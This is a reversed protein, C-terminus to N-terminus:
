SAPAYSCPFEIPELARGLEDAVDALPSTGRAWTCLVDRLADTVFGTWRSAPSHAWNRRHLENRLALAFYGDAGCRWPEHCHVSALGRLLRQAIPNADLAAFAPKLRQGLQGASTTGEWADVVVAGLVPPPFAFISDFGDLRDILTRGSRGICAAVEAQKPKDIGAMVMEAAAVQARIRISTARQWGPATSASSRFGAVVEADTVDDLRLGSPMVANSSARPSSIHFGIAIGPPAPTSDSSVPNHSTLSRTMSVHSVVENWSALFEPTISFHGLFM